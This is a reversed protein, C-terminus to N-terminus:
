DKGDNGHDDEGAYSCGNIKDDEKDANVEDDLYNEQDNIIRM